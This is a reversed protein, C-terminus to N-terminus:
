ELPPIVRQAIWLSNDCDLVANFHRGLSQGAESGRIAEARGAWASASDHVGYLRLDPSNPNSTFPIGSYFVFDTHTGLENLVDNLHGWLDGLDAQAMGSRYTCASSSIFAPPNAVPPEGGDFVTERMAIGSRCDLVTEFREDVATMESSAAFADTYAGFASLDTYNSFWLVDYNFSGKFPTWVFSTPIELGAKEAQRVYFDRASMVDDMDKGDIFNCVFVERVDAQAYGGTAFTFGLAAVFLLRILKM